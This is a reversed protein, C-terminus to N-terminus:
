YDIFWDYGSIKRYEAPITTIIRRKEPNDVDEHRKVLYFKKKITDAPYIYEITDVDAGVWKFKYLPVEGPHGYEVGRVMKESASFVPNIFNLKEMFGGTANNYIYVDYANRACCGSSGYWNFLFDKVKDGNVDKITDGTYVLYWDKVELVKKFISKEILYVDLFVVTPQVVRRVFLHRKDKSFLNGIKAFSYVRDGDIAITKSFAPENINSKALILMEDLMRKATTSDRIEQKKYELREANIKNTDQRAMSLAETKNLSNTSFAHKPKQKCAAVFLLFVVLILRNM